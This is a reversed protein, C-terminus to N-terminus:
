YISYTAAVVRKLPRKLTVTARSLSLRNPSVSLVSAQLVITAVSGDALRKKVRDIGKLYVRVKAQEGDM